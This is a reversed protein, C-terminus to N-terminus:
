DFAGIDAIADHDDAADRLDDSQMDAASMLVKNQEKPAKLLFYLIILLLIIGIIITITMLLAAILGPDCELTAEDYDKHWGNRRVKYSAAYWAM